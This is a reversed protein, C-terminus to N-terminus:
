KGSALDKVVREIGEVVRSMRDYDLTDPKDLPTHYWPNRFTATDTIMMAPYGEQWFSWHDSWGVGPMFGPPSGGESPFATTERFHRLARKNLTRSSWNSVFAIYNGTTPYLANLPPLLKQSGPLDSYFGISEISIMAVINDNRARCAKAYVWSGMDETRAQPQSKFLRALYLCAAVGSANDDAGPTGQFADYHAGVIVIESPLRTGAVEVEFNPVPSGREVPYERITTYGFSTLQDHIWAGSAAFRKPYFTSRNGVRGVGGTADALVSVWGELEGALAKQSPTAPPLPGTHSTGPMVIMSWYGYVLLVGILVFLVGLRKLAARTLIRLRRRSPLAAAIPRSTGQPDVLSNM